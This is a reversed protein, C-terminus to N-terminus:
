RRRSRHSRKKVAKEMWCIRSRTQLANPKLESSTSDEISSRFNLFLRSIIKPGSWTGEGFGSSKEEVSQSQGGVQLLSDQSKGASGTSSSADVAPAADTASSDGGEVEASESEDTTVGEAREDPLKSTAADEDVSLAELSNEEQGQPQAQASTKSAVRPLSAGVFPAVGGAVLLLKVARLM